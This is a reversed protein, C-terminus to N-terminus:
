RQGTITHDSAIPSQPDSSLPLLCRSGTAPGPPGGRGAMAASAALSDNQEPRTFEQDRDFQKTLQEEPGLPQSLLQESDGTFPGAFYWEGLTLEPTAVPEGEDRPHLFKSEWESQEGDIAAWDAALAHDLEAIQREYSALLALEAQSGVRKTPPPDHANGDLPNGDLSNFYGFLSYFDNMTLPDFKHDHCRTCDLTLGMFVTGFTVVRDVVNRVYVEEAISGGESTTVHCRCFGTAILQDDTPEPLLDGALQETIFEDYPLNRNFAQVVWDRYPWMERYNDLHLGHTDGYRAADLWYRAMHEGYRPSSLLRDVVKEYATSSTDNLFSDVESLTPPLGTLDLTVRRILTEKDAEASPSLGAAELKALIFYDVANRPWDSRVVSPLDPRVPPLLSWHQQWTAGQEIWRRLLRKEADSLSKGSDDPPMRLSPDDAEIRAILESSDPDGPVVATEGSEAPQTASEYRDFRLEAERTEDDPGHCRFCRDSLLPRVESAFHVTEAGDSKSLAPGGAGSRLPDAAGSQCFAMTSLTVCVISSLALRFPTQHTM